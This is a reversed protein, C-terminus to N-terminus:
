TQEPRTKSLGKVARVFAAGSFNERVWDRGGRPPHELADLIARRMDQPNDNECIVVGSPARFGACARRNAVVPVDRSLADLMKIPFGGPVRRPVVAVDCTEYASVRDAETSLPMVTVNPYERLLVEPKSETAVHVTFPRAAELLIDLGQYADLNGAYLVVPEKRTTPRRIPPALPWPIPLPQCRYYRALDPTIARMRGARSIGDMVLGIGRAFSAHGARNAYSPMELDYRTHAVTIAQRLGALKTVLSAEAGHAMMVHPRILRALERARRVLGLDRRVKEASPGSRMDGSASGTGRHLTWARPRDDEEGSAYTLLHADHGRLAEADLM